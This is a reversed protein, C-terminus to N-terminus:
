IGTTKSIILHSLYHLRYVVLLTTSVLNIALVLLESTIRHDTFNSALMNKLIQKTEHCPINSYMNTIDLSAFMTTPAMPTQKLERILEASNKVNFTYPLLASEFHLYIFRFGEAGVIFHRIFSCLGSWGTRGTTLQLFAGAYLSEWHTVVLILCNAESGYANLTLFEASSIRSSFCVGIVGVVM